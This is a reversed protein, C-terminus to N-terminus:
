RRGKKPRYKEYIEQLLKVADAMMADKWGRGAYKASSSQRGTTSIGLRFCRRDWDLTIFGGRAIAHELISYRADDGHPGIKWGAPLAATTPTASM